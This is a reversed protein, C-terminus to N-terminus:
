KKCYTAFNIAFNRAIESVKLAAEFLEDAKKEQGQDRSKRSEELLGGSIALFLGSGESVKKCDQQKWYGMEIKKLDIDNHKPKSKHSDAYSLAPLVLVVAVLLVKNM